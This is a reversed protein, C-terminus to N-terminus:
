AGSWEHSPDSRDVPVSLTVRWRDRDRASSFEAGILQARERMGVLGLGRNAETPADVAAVIDNEVGLTLAADTYDLQVDVKCGPAHHRANALAEQLVRYVTVDAVPSLAVPEGARVLAVDTGLARNAEILEHIDDVGPVPAGSDDVPGGPEERLVGVVLRLNALTLKGQARIWQVASRAADPDRDILREVASAQVVMGSLHHAAIDHLERAMRSREASIAAAARNEQEAIAEAARLTLLEVYQRRTAIYSGVLAAIAYALVAAVAHNVTALWPDTPATAPTGLLASDIVPGVLRAFVGGALEVVLAILITRAAISPLYAGVSYAAIFVAIGMSSIDQPLVAVLAIQLVAITMVCVLTHLRRICLVLSLAISIALIAGFQAPAVILEVVVPPTGVVAIWVLVSAVAVSIALVCDRAFVTRAGIADLLRDLRAAIATSPWDGRIAPRADM